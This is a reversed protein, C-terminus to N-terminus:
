NTGDGRLVKLSEMKGLNPSLGDLMSCGSLILELSKVLFVKKPLKRLNKCGELNLLVLTGLEGISEHIGVLNTCYKLILRELNPLQSFDPSNTLSYSYSLDLIKLSRLSRTRKWLQELSSNQMELVVLSDLTFDNPISKLPFGHWCLWRLKKPFKQYGGSLSVNNLQLLRLNHMQSFADTKLDDEDSELFSETFAPIVRLFSFLGRRRRKLSNGENFMTHEALFDENQSQAGSASKAPMDELNLSVGEITTTGTKDRLVNFADKHCWVRSRKGPEKQSERRVIERGMDRLVQHMILKNDDKNVEILGRRTLNQIGITISFDCEELIKVTYVKDKGVFFCAIDLFLNKEHDDLSDYSIKLVNHIKEPFHTRLKALASEWVDISEGSLSSGLVELALPLGGCHHIVRKSHEIYAEIPKDQGFAHRSFLCLAENDNLEKVVYLKYVEDAKLLQVHRTTIMIKSGPHLWDRMGLLANVQDLDDVDDLVVLVRKCCMADKIKNIGEAVCYIREKNWKLIDSVLQRQLRVLGNPQKTTERINALFSSGEFKDFNQNYVIKAITTKGIGGMGCIVMISVNNLGGQFWLNIDKVHSDIGTHYPTVSLITFDLKSVIEQVIIQIFKSEHRDAQNQLVMGGLDAVEGLAKRWLGMKEMGQKRKREDIEVRFKAEHMEFAEALTGTQKRVNSPDVDYFVPLIVHGVTRRQEVIMVLEDLCWGSSAYDKSLVIVSSRSQKIARELESKINEGREIEDDDRFTRLGAGVLATYLHDTFNKRTDEGRFSIFVQFAYRSISSSPESAM